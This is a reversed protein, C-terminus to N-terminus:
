KKREKPIYNIEKKLEQIKDYQEYEFFTYSIVGLFFVLFVSSGILLLFYPKEFYAISVLLQVIPIIIMNYSNIKNDTYQYQKIFKKPAEVRFKMFTLVSFLVLISFYVFYNKNDWKDFIVTEYCFTGGYILAIILIIESMKFKYLMKEENFNNKKAKIAIWINYVISIILPIFYLSRIWFSIWSCKFIYIIAMAVILQIIYGGSKQNKLVSGYLKYELVKDYEKIIHKIDNKDDPYNVKPFINKVVM